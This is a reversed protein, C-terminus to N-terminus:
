IYRPYLNRSNQRSMVNPPIEQRIRHKPIATTVSPPPPTPLAYEQDERFSSISSESSVSGPQPSWLSQSSTSSLQPSVPFLNLPISDELPPFDSAQFRYIPLSDSRNRASPSVAKAPTNPSVSKTPSYMSLISEPYPSAVSNEPTYPRHLPPPLEIPSPRNRRIKSVFGTSGSRNPSTQVVPLSASRALPSRPINEVYHPRQIAHTPENEYRRRQQSESHHSGNPVRHSSPQPPALYPTNAYRRAREERKRLQLAEYRKREESQFNEEDNPSGLRSEEGFPPLVRGSRSYNRTQEVRHQYYDPTRQSFSRVPIQRPPNSHM